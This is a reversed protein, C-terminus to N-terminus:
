GAVPEKAGAKGVWHFGGIVAIKGASMAGAPEAAPGHELFQHCFDLRAPAQSEVDHLHGGVRLQETVQVRVAPLEFEAVVAIAGGCEDAARPIGQVDTRHPIEVPPRVINKVGYM